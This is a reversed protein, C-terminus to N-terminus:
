PRGARKSETAAMKALWEGAEIVPASSREARGRIYGGEIASIVLGSFSDTRARTRMPVERAVIARWAEMIKAVVPRLAAWERDIDLTVAGAACSQAFEGQELRGAILRFLARVKGEPSKGSALASEFAAGVRAGYLELAETAIQMKGDPFYYYLSGRPARSRLLIQNIGAGSLGSERMLAIAAELILGRPAPAAQNTV